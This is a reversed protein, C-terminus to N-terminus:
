SGLVVRFIYSVSAALFWFLTAGALVFGINVWRHKKAVNSSLVHLGAALADIELAEDVNHLVRRLSEANLRRIDEFFAITGASPEPSSRPRGIVGRSWLSLQASVISGALSATMLGLTLWTESGFRTVVPLLASPAKFVATTVFALFAGDVTLLVQAKTDANRYWDLTEAYLRRSYQLGTSPVDAASSRSEQGRGLIWAALRGLFRSGSAAGQRGGGWAPVVRTYM